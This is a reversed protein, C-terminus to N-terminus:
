QPYSAPKWAWPTLEDLRGDLHGNVLRTLVDTLYSNPNVDHLKCCEILTALVAWNEAGEDSGAFLANKRNLAIPRITQEVPNSDLEIRGNDLFRTLGDWRSLTYRIAEAMPSRGSVEKLRTELWLKLDLVLPRSQEQRVAKRISADQGRIDAEIAYLGAIRRLAESAIPAAGGKTLEFFRRRAHAWCHALVIAGHPRDAEVLTKYAGYGDAQLIGSFDKLLAIAYDAGRGPAYTYVVAPPDSGGWGRDDRVIAWFYGAPLWSRISPRFSTSGDRSTGASPTCRAPV